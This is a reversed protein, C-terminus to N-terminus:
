IKQFSYLTGLQLIQTLEDLAVRIENLLVPDVLDGIVLKDRYHRDVWQILCQYLAENLFVGPACANREAETLVVRLRLCAPGGGNLMSQRCDVFHLESIPNNELRLRQLVQYAAKNEQSEVPSILVMADTKLTVLQSNFLYTKVADQISLESTLVPMLYLIDQFQNKLLDMIKKSEIFVSEHYLFVNQNAVSIVDNHFVGHDIAVPNQKVFLTKKSRLQHLRAIAESAERTQRAPNRHPLTENKQSVSRDYVFLNLGADGYAHCIRNHNAAGEDALDLHAYLPSHVSFYQEDLFIKKFIDFNTQAELARHLNSILNAPTIHVRGDLSDVSPTVTAANAVWMSSGSCAAGFLIPDREYAAKLIQHDTGSFGLNKLFWLAPREHPPLVAQPIGLQMLLHMKKLGQLAAAKPNSVKHANAKSALNGFALGGYHHTQGVIGDFNIEFAKV